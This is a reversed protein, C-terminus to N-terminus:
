NQQNQTTQKGKKLRFRGLLKQLVKEVLNELFLPQPPKIKPSFIKKSWVSLIVWQKNENQTAVVEIQYGSYNRYFVWGGKTRAFKSEQPHSFTAWADGQNINRERLKQLAHNTWIVGKFNNDM